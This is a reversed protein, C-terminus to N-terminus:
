VIRVFISCVRAEIQGCPFVNWNLISLSSLSSFESTTASQGKWPEKQYCLWDHSQKSWGPMCRLYIFLYYTYTHGAESNDVSQTKTFLLRQIKHDICSLWSCCHFYYDWIQSTNCGSHLTYEYFFFMQIKMRNVMTAFCAGEIRDEILGYVNLNENSPLAIEKQLNQKTVKCYFWPLLDSSAAWCLVNLLSILQLLSGYLQLSSMTQMYGIFSTKGTYELLLLTIEKM